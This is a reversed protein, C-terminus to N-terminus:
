HSTQQEDSALAEDHPLTCLTHTTHCVYHVATEAPPPNSTTGGSQPLETTYVMHTGVSEKYTAKFTEGSQLVITPHQTGLNQLRIADGPHVDVGEEALADLDVVLYMTNTESNPDTQM